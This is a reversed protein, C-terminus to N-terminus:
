LIINYLHWACACACRSCGACVSVSQRRPELAHAVIQKITLRTTGPPGWRRGHVLRAATWRNM